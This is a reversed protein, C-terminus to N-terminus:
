RVATWTGPAYVARTGRREGNLFNFVILAGCHTVECDLEWMDGPVSGQVAEHTVVHYGQRGNTDVLVGIAMSKM